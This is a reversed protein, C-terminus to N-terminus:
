ALRPDAGYRNTDNQGPAFVLLGWGCITVLKVMGSLIQANEFRTSFSSSGLREVIILFISLAAVAGAYGGRQGIDHSRRVLLSFMPLYYFCVLGAFLRDDLSNLSYGFPMMALQFLAPVLFLYIALETRTSRGSFELTHTIIKLLLRPYERIWHGAM